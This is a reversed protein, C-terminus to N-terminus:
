PKLGMMPLSLALCVPWAAVCIGGGVVVAAPGLLASEKTQNNAVGVTYRQDLKHYDARQIMEPVGGFYRRGTISIPLYFVGGLKKTYKEVDADSWEAYRPISEGDPVIRAQGKISYIQGHSFGIREAIKKIEEDDKFYSDLLIISFHGIIVKNENVQFATSGDNPFLLSIGEKLPSKIAESLPDPIDFEYSYFEYKSKKAGIIVAKKFDSSIYVDSFSEQYTSSSSACGTLLALIIIAAAILRM